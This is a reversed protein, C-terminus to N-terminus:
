EGEALDRRIFEREEETMEYLEFVKEDIRKDILEIEKQIDARKEGFAPDCLQENLVLNKDVLLKIENQQEPSAKRIPLSKLKSIRVQPFTRKKQFPDSKYYWELLKSNLLALIYKIEFDDSTVSTGHLSHDYYHGENDYCAILRDATKRTLIKERKFIKEERLRLGVEREGVREKEIRLLRDKDRCVFMGGWRKSYREIDRGFLVKQYASDLKKDSFAIDKIRGVIIGDRVDGISELKLSGQEIKAILESTRDDSYIDFIQNKNVCWKEQSINRDKRLGNLGLVRIEIKNTKRAKAEAEKQLIIIINDVVTEFAKVSLTAISIIKCNNLVFNRLKEAQELVLWTHPVIFGLMGGDRLLEIGREIFFRYIEYRGQACYYQQKFRKKDSPLLYTRKGIYPPNGIIIDFPRKQLLKVLSSKKNGRVVKTIPADNNFADLDLFNDFRKDLSDGEVINIEGTPHDLDKLLLNMVTLQTAFPNIDIGHINNKLIQEHIVEEAWREERYRERLRNYARILFGGSGCAPDLIKIDEVSKENLVINLTNDLIYDIVFDPTYFQGLQKREEGTIHQEYAMGLIDRSIRSFDHEGLKDLIYNITKENWRITDFNINDFLPSKYLREFRDGVEEFALNLIRIPKEVMRRLDAINEKSLKAKIYGKDECIRLFLIRNILTYAGEKCLNDIFQPDKIDMKVKEAWNNILDRFDEEKDYRDKFQEFLDQFLIDKCDTLDRILSKATIRERIYEAEKTIREATPLNEKSIRDWLESFTQPLDNLRTSFLLRDEPLVGSIYSKYLRTEIGNTLLVWDVGKKFAYDLAQEIHNDLNEDLDKTEVILKPQGEFILAIDARGNRVHHEFDMDRKVDYGLMKLLPIIIKIKVNEEVRGSSMRIVRDIDLQSLEEISNEENM